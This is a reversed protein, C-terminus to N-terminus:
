GARLRARLRAFVEHAPRAEVKGDLLDAARREVEAQWTEEAGPDSEEPELSALIAEAAAAREPAPLELIEEVLRSTARTM